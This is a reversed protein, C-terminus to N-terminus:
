SQHLKESLQKAKIYISVAESRGRADLRVYVEKIHASVTDPSLGLEKAVEKTTKGEVVLDMISVQKHTLPKNGPVQITSRYENTPHLDLNDKVALFQRVSSAIEKFSSAKPLFLHGRALITQVFDSEPTEGSLFMLKTQPTFGELFDVLEMPEVDPMLLDSVIADFKKEELISKLDNFNSVSDISADVLLSGLMEGTASLLLPHDDILLIKM